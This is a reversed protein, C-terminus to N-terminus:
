QRRGPSGSLEYKLREKGTETNIKVLEIFFREMLKKKETDMNEVAQRLRRLVDPFNDNLESLSNLKAQDLTDFLTEVFIETEGETMENLWQNLSENQVETHKYISSQKKFRHGSVKWNFPNHQGLGFSRCDVVDYNEEIPMLMGVLSAKPVTKRIKKEIVAMEQESIVGNKFGPSDHTYIRKIRSQYDPDCKACSYVALNGGKSHGGIYFNQSSKGAFNNLYSVAYLQAPVPSKYAMNFDEHWGIITDDTGRFAIYALDESLIFAIASFQIEKEKETINVYDRLLIRSFRSSERCLAYLQRNSKEYPKYTFLDNFSPSKALSNLYLDTDYPIVTDYKLYSLQSLILSDVETFSLESFTKEGYKKVYDIINKM